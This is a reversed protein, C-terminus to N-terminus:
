SRKRPTNQSKEQVFWGYSIRAFWRVFFWTIYSLLFTGGIIMTWVVAIPFNNGTGVMSGLDRGIDPSRLALVGGIACVMLLTGLTFKNADCTIRELAAVDGKSYRTRRGIYIGVIISLMSHILPIGNMLFILIVSIIVYVVMFIWLRLTYLNRILDPLWVFVFICGFTLGTLSMAEADLGVLPAVWGFLFIFSMLIAPIFIIVFFLRDFRTVCFGGM